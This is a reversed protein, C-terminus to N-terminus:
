EDHRHDPINPRDGMIEGGRQSCHLISTRIIAGPLSRRGGAGGSAIRAPLRCTVASTARSPPTASTEPEERRADPGDAVDAMPPTAILLTVMAPVSAVLACALLRSVSRHASM